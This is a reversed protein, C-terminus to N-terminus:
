KKGEEINNKISEFIKVFIPDIVNDKLYQYTEMEPDDQLRKLLDRKFKEMNLYSFEVEVEKVDKFFISRIYNLYVKDGNGQAIIRSKVFCWISKVYITKM